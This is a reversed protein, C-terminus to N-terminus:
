GARALLEKEIVDVLEYTLNSLILKKRGEDYYV